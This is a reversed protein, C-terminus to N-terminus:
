GTVLEGVANLYAEPDPVRELLASTTGFLREAELFQAAVGAPREGAGTPVLGSMAAVAASEGRYLIALEIPARAVEANDLLQDLIHRYFAVQLRHEVKATTSSKMDAILIRLTGSADRELRLLDVDGTILWGAIEAQLRPQLLVIPSEPTLSGALEIVESNNPQREGPPPAEAAFDRVPYQKSVEQTVRAEFEAGARTLLPPIEQPAVDFDRLFRSGELREHLRLRLFRRCQDLRVFQAVDTPSIPLTRGQFVAPTLRDDPSM